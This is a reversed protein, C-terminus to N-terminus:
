YNPVNITMLDEQGTEASVRVSYRGPPLGKGGIAFITSTGLYEPAQSLVGPHAIQGDPSILEILYKYKFGKFLDPILGEIGVGATWGIPTNDNENKIWVVPEKLGTLKFSAM